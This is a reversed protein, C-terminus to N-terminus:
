LPVTLFWQDLSCIRNIRGLCNCRKEEMKKRVEKYLEASFWLPGSPFSFVTGHVLSVACYRWIYVKEPYQKEKREM